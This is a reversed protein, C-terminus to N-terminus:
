VERRHGPVGDRLLRRVTEALVAVGTPLAEEDLDFDPSHHPATIGREVNRVGLRFLVVPIGTVGFAFFDESGLSPQREVVVRGEGVLTRGARAVLGALRRDNHGVAYGREVEIAVSARHASAIGRAVEQVRDLLLERVDQHVARLTAELRVEPAIINSKTGGHIAGYSVVAPKVPDVERSVVRQTANVIEAAVPVPDIATEPHAAHGGKGHVTVFLTDFSAFAPGPKVAVIGRDYASSVHLALVADPVPDDLVGAEVMDAAGGVSEEAPQFYLAVTGPLDVDVLMEALGLLIAVHADHGCAHSLGEIESRYGPRGPAETVPLADMDARVGICGEGDGDLVAVLGTDVVRRAVIGLDALTEEVYAATRHEEFALEPHRHLTRRHTRVRDLLAAAREQFWDADLTM